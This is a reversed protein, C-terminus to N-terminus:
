TCNKWVPAFRRLSTTSVPYIGSFVMPRVEKFRAATPNDAGQGLDGHGSRSTPPDKITRGLVGRDGELVGVPKQDPSFFGVERLQTVQGSGIYRIADGAKIRGNVV